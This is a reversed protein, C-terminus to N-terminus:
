LCGGDCQVQLDMYLNTGVDGSVVTYGPSVYSPISGNNQCAADTIEGTVVINTYTSGGGTCQDANCGVSIVDGVYVTYTGSATNNRTEVSVSNIYLDYIGQGGAVESFSWYLTASAGTTTTTTPPVTTTTTTPPVTTTTVCNCSTGGYTVFSITAGVGFLSGNQLCDNIVQPGIGFTLYITNGCCDVYRVDGASDVEFSVSTVCASTTTTTTPALTTTTTTPAATTTTTTPAATTTTTTVGCATNCNISNGVTTMIIAPSCPSFLQTFNKYVFGTISQPKYYRNSTVISSGAPFAVCVASQVFTCPDCSYEDAEYYDYPSATTTTTTPVQTTTTTTPAQTTTTTSTTTSPCTGCTLSWQATDSTPNEPDAPGYEVMVYRGSTSAFDYTFNGSPSVNLSVGWPGPWTAYGVWGSTAILGTSDYLNFRNPRDIADYTFTGCENSTSCVVQTPYQGYATDSTNFTITGDGCSYCAETTTTTTTAATTTTTTPAATTTTTTTTTSTTSTTSTTTTTTTVCDCDSNKTVSFWTNNPVIISGSVLCSTLSKPNFYSLLEAQPEGTECNLYYVFATNVGNIQVTDNDCNCINFSGTGCPVGLNPITSCNGQPAVSCNITEIIERACIYRIVGSSFVHVRQVGYCDIYTLTAPNANRVVSYNICTPCLTTTTSTTAIIDVVSNGNCEAGGNVVKLCAANDPVTVVVSSGVSPLYVNNGDICITYNVCDTSYYVDFLPGADAGKGTLTIQKNINPM